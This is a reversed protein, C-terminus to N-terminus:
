LHHKLLFRVDILKFKTLYHKSMDDIKIFIFEM